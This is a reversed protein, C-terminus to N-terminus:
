SFVFNDDSLVSVFKYFIDQRIYKKLTKLYIIVKEKDGYEYTGDQNITGGSIGIILFKKINEIDNYKKLYVSEANKNIYDVILNETIQNIPTFGKIILKFYRLPKILKNYRSEDAWMDFLQLRVPLRIKKNVLDDLTNPHHTLLIKNRVDYILSNVTFELQLSGQNFIHKNYNGEIDEAFIQHNWRDYFKDCNYKYKDCLSVIDERTTKFTLDLDKTQKNYFSDRVFGGLIYVEDTIQFLRDIFTKYTIGISSKLKLNRDVNETLKPIKYFKYRNEYEGLNYSDIINRDTVEYSDEDTGLKEKIRNNLEFKLRKM